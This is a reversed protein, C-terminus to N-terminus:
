RPQKEAVTADQSKLLNIAAAITLDSPVPRYGSATQRQKLTISKFFFAQGTAEIILQNMRWKTPALIQQQLFLKGGKDVHGLIGWGIRIDKALTADLRLIRKERSDIWLSGETARYILTERTTTHFSPNPKFKLRITERGEILETGANEYLLADPLARLLSLMRQEENKQDQLKRRQEEPNNALATLREDDASREAPTLLRGNVSVLRAVIGDKTEVMTKAQTGSKSEKSLRYMWFDKQQETAKVENSVAQKVLQIPDQGQAAAVSSFSAIAFVLTVNSITKRFSVGIRM